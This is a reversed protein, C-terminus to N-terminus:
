SEQFQSILMYKICTEVHGSDERKKDLFTFILTFFAVKRGTTDIHPVQVSTRLYYSLHLINSFLISLLINPGLFFHCSSFFIAPHSTEYNMSKVNFLTIFALIILHAPHISHKQSVVFAHSTKPALGVSSLGSPHCLFLHFCLLLTNHSHSNSETQSFVPNV